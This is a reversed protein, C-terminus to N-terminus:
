CRPCGAPSLRLPELNKPMTRDTWSSRDLLGGCHITVTTGITSFGARTPQRYLVLFKAPEHGPRLERGQANIDPGHGLLRSSRDGRVRHYLTEMTSDAETISSRLRFAAAPPCPAPAGHLRGHTSLPWASSRQHALLPRPSLSGRTQCGAGARVSPARPFLLAGDRPKLITSHILPAFSRRLM